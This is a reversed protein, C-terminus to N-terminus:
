AHDRAGPIRLEPVAAANLYTRVAFVVGASLALTCLLIGAGFVVDALPEASDMSDSLLWNWDHIVGRAILRLERIPADRIYVSVNVLSEGCWFAPLVGQRHSQRAAVLALLLPLFVQLFSGGFVYIWMGFPKLFFHGAEHIFLNITDVVWLVFPPSFSPSSPDYRFALVYLLYALYSLGLLKLLLPVARAM